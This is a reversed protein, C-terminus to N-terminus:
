PAIWESVRQAEDALKIASNLSNDVYFHPIQPRLDLDITALYDDWRNLKWSDRAADRMQLYTHMTEVDASVWVVELHARGTTCRHVLWRLWQPDGIEALFPATVVTSVGNDINTFAANNLARYELPRVKSRYLDTHRDNPESGLSVLMSEVLPRTLVDKDLLAWGTVASLFKAFETKGSGAFGAVLVLNAERHETHRRQAWAQMVRAEFRKGDPRGLEAVDTPLARELASHLQTPLQAAHQSAAPAEPVAVAADSTPVLGVGIYERPINLGVAVRVYVDYNEIRRRGGAIERVRQEGIDTAQAIAAWSWGRRHLFQFVSKIDRAALLQRMPQGDVQEDEWWAPDIPQRTTV